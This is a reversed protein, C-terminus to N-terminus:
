NEWGYLVFEGVIIAPDKLAVQLAPKRTFANAVQSAAAATMAGASRAAGGLASIGRGLPTKEILRETEGEDKLVLMGTVIRTARCLTEPMMALIEKAIQPKPLESAPLRHVRARVLDHTHATRIHTRTLIGRVSRLEDFRFQCADEGMWRIRGVKTSRIARGLEGIGSKLRARLAVLADDYSASAIEAGAPRLKPPLVSYGQHRKLITAIGNALEDFRETAEAYRAFLHSNRKLKPEDFELADLALEEFTPPTSTATAVM